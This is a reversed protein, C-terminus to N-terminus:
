SADWFAANAILQLVGAGDHSPRGDVRQSARGPHAPANCSAHQFPAGPEGGQGVTPKTPLPTGHNDSNTRRHQLPERLQWPLPVCRGLRKVGGSVRAFWIADADRTLRLVAWFYQLM